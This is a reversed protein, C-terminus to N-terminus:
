LAYNTPINESNIIHVFATFNINLQEFFLYYNVLKSTERLNITKSLSKIEKWNFEKMGSQAGAELSVPTM